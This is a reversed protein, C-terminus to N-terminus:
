EVAIQRWQSVGLGEARQQRWEPATFPHDVGLRWEAAGLLDDVIQAAVGVAHGDAVVAEPTHLVALDCELVLLVTGGITLLGLSIVTEASSNIRRKRSCENGGPKM